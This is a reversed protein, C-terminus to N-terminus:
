LIQLCVWQARKQFAQWEAGNIKFEMRYKNRDTVASSLVINITNGSQSGSVFNPEYTSEVYYASLTCTGLSTNTFKYPYSTIKQVTYQVVVM